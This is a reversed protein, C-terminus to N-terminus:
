GGVEGRGLESAGSGGRVLGTTDHGRKGAAVPRGAISRQGGGEGCVAAQAGTRAPRVRQASSIDGCIEEAHVRPGAFVGRGLGQLEGPGPSTTRVALRPEGASPGGLRARKSQERTAMAGVNQDSLKIRGRNLEKAMKTGCFHFSRQCQRERIAAMCRRQWFRFIPADLNCDTRVTPRGM